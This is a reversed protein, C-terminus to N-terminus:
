NPHVESLSDLYYGFYVLINYAIFNTWFRKKNSHNKGFHMTNAAKVTFGASLM